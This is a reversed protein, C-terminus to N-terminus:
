TAARRHETATSPRETPDRRDADADAVDASDADPEIQGVSDDRQGRAAADYGANQEPRDQAEDPPENGGRTTGDPRPEPEM